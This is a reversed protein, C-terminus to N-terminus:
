KREIVAFYNNEPDAFNFIKGSPIEVLDGVTIEKAKFEEYLNEVNDTFFMLSPPGVNLYPEMKAVLQKNQLVFSTEADKTPAIEIMHFQGNTEESRVICGVKETWFTKAAEQNDVYIMVQGLQQIM